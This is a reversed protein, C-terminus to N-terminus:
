YHASPSAIRVHDFQLIDQSFDLEDALGYIRM